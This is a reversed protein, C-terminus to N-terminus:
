SETESSVEYEFLYYWRIFLVYAIGANLLMLVLSPIGFLISFFYFLFLLFMRRIFIELLMSQRYLYAYLLLVISLLFFVGQLLWWIHFFPFFYRAFIIAEPLIMLFLTFANRSFKQFLSQPMNKQLPLAANEFYHFYYVLAVNAMGVVVLAFSVLRGDYGGMGFLRSTLILVLCIGAKTLLFSVKHSHLIRFLFFSFSPKMFKRDLTVLLSFFRSEQGPYKLKRGYVLLSVIAAMLLYVLCLGISLYRQYVIGLGIMVGVYLIVPLFQLIYILLGGQIQYQTPYLYLQNIFQNQKEGFSQITFNIIKLLYLSWLLALGGLLFYSHLAAVIIYYHEVNRLVGASFGLLVFFFGANKKYFQVVLTKVLINYLNGM